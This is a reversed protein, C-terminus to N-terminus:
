TEGENVDPDDWFDGHEPDPEEDDFDWGFDDWPAEVDGDFAQDDEDPDDMPQVEAAAACCVTNGAFLGDGPRELPKKM